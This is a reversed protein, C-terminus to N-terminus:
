YTKTHCFEERKEREREREREREMISDIDHNDIYYM